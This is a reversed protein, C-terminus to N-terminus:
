LLHFTVIRSLVIPTRSSICGTMEDQFRVSFGLLARNIGALEEVRPRTFVPM